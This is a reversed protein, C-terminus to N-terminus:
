ILHSKLFDLVDTFAQKVIPSNWEEDFVHKGDPITILKNDVGIEKLKEAMLVSQEYPVDEDNTGHLLLTPPFDANAQHLPCFQSLKKKDLIHHLGSIENIWEGNQRAYMYIAYRKEIPGVSIVQDSVLSKVLEKPVNTMTQYHPSPQIAWNGTIDGYGYFSVIAKPKNEFLGTLLSLFGGASGGMVAIKNADYDFQATGENEVWSLADIIDSKIEHLKTEPALRYDISFINFGAEHFFEIQEAKMDERSGWFLGGGHIYIIIPATKRESPYLDGKLEFNNGVKYIVTTKNM